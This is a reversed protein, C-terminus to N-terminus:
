FWSASKLRKEKKEEQRDGSSPHVTLSRALFFFLLLTKHDTLVVGKSRMGPKESVHLKTANQLGHSTAM